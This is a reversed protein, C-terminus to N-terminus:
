WQSHCGGFGALGGDASQGPRNWTRRDGYSDDYESDGSTYDWGKNRAIEAFSSEDGLPSYRFTLAPQIGFAIAFADAIDPSKVGRARMEDKSEMALKGSSHPKQRRSTLQAFLRKVTEHHRDPCVIKGSKLAKAVTYWIRTGENQFAPDNSHGGFNFDCIPIGGERILDCMPRGVGTADGFVSMGAKDRYGMRHLELIFQGAARATDKDKWAKVWALKNGVRKVVVNDDGGAAFDLGFVTPGPTFDVVSQAWAEADSLELIHSVGDGFDMFEGYLTSRTFPSDDGYTAIIDAIKEKAIHPCDALGVAFNIFSESNVTFADYFPGQKLGPSSIYLLVNYSCRDIAQLIEPDISKAEDVVVLLPCDADAHFGEARGPDQTTFCRIRGGDKSTATHEADSWKWFSFKAAQARLAPWLQDGLQRADFSTVVAKGKPFRQLWRLVSLAIIRQTKGVGNPARVAFKKRKLPAAQELALLIRAQWDYLQIGLGATFELVDKPEHRETM